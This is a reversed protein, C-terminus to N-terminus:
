RGKGKFITLLTHMMIKLDLALSINEIYILDYKMREVMEDVNEAYGFQVMGWSTIGPKVKLLYKFYPTRQLIRDIYYQREPRPGVLSMEGRIVNFLQPLEDIRWKRMTKGWRTVRDDKESSLSPGQLEANKIMSRFKHIMFKRGKYGTREQSYFVPGPSSMKVRIAAYVLLPSLGILGIVSFLVDVLRKIHMQWEPMLGTHIDILLAGFLNNTKVSGSLIDLIDPIIKIELDKESLRQIMKEAAEQENKDMAVVVLRIHERDVLKELEDATGLCSLPINMPDGTTDPQVYGTYHYGNSRLGSVTEEYTKLGTSGSGLLLTNFVIKGKRIQMKTLFLILWRGTWTILFHMILFTFYAKYYYRYDTQPDNIVIAFFLITCGIMGSVATSSFENLRSKKYLSHYTGTLAYFIIWGAPILVLGLWFRNNLFIKGDIFIAEDLLARRTFYLIMWSLIASIFDSLMYWTIHIKRGPQLM